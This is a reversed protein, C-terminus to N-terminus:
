SKKIIHNCYNLAYGSSELCALNKLAFCERKRAHKHHYKTQPLMKRLNNILIQQKTTVLRPKPTQQLSKKNQSHTQM